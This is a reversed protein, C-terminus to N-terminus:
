DIKELERIRSEIEEMDRKMVDAQNKLLGLEEERNPTPWYPVAGAAHPVAGGWMGPYWCRPLGGRGRGIYPWAPSAGRFGFGYGLYEPRIGRPNCLGRGGGTMPGMGRPGTRDFGPM